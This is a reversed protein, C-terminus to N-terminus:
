LVFSCFFLLVFSGTARRACLPVFSCFSSGTAKRAFWSGLVPFGSHICAFRRLLLDILGYPRSEDRGPIQCVTLGYSM